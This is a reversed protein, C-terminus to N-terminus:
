AAPRATKRAEKRRTPRTRKPNYRALSNELAAQCQSELARYQTILWCGYETLRTGGGNKGGVCRIVIPFEAAQNMRQIADWAAKYSYPVQRAARLISGTTQVSELLRVGREDLFKGASTRIELHCQCRSFRVKGNVIVVGREYRINRTACM